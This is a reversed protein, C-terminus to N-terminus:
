FFIWKLIKGWGIVWPIFGLFIVGVGILYFIIAPKDSWNYITDYDDVHGSPKTEKTTKTTEVDDDTMGKRAWEGLM